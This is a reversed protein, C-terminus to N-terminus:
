IKRFLVAVWLGINGILTQRYFGGKVLHYLNLPFASSRIQRFRDFQAQNEETLLHSSPELAAIHQESWFRFRGANLMGLRKVLARLGTNAGVLNEAHQRYGIAPEPDYKVGGGCGTVVLYSWWDYSPVDIATGFARLLEAAASNIVMTNGGAISQVLANTFNKPRSFLPSYGITNGAEDINRTRSCYLAPTQVPQASLWSIARELKDPDWIDDQDCFAYYASARDACAVMGLFNRVFGRRPGEIVEVTHTTGTRFEEVIELTADTSGDDSILLRWNGYTQNELSQLQERFFREGNFTALLISVGGDQGQISNTNNM